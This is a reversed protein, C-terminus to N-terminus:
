CCLKGATGAKTPLTSRSVAALGPRIPPRQPDRWPPLGSGVPQFDQADIASYLRAALALDCRSGPWASEIAFRSIVHPGAGRVERALWLVPRRMAAFADLEIAVALPVDHGGRFPLCEWDPDPSCNGTARRRDDPIAGSYNMREGSWRREWEAIDSYLDRAIVIEARGDLAAIDRDINGVKSRRRGAEAIESALWAINRDIVQRQLDFQATVYIRPRGAAIEATRDLFAAITRRREARPDLRHTRTV